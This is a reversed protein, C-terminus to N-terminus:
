HVREAERHQRLSFLLCGARGGCLPCADFYGAREMDYQEWTCPLELGCAECEHSWIHAKGDPLLRSAERTLVECVAPPMACPRDRYGQAQAVCLHNFWAYLASRQVEGSEHEAIIQVAHEDSLTLLLANAAAYYASWWPDIQDQTEVAAVRELREVRDQLNM